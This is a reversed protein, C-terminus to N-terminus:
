QAFSWLSKRIAPDFALGIIARGNLKSNKFVQEGSLGVMTTLTAAQKTLDAGGEM